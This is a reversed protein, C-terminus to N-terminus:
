EYDVKAKMKRGCCPCYKMFINESYGENEFVLRKNWANQCNSCKYMNPNILMQVWQASEPQVPPLNKIRCIVDCLYSYTNIAAEADGVVFPETDFAKIADEKYVTEKM